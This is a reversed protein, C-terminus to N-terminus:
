RPRKRGKGSAQNAKAKESPAFKAKEEDTMKRVSLSGDDIQQKILEKKENRKAEDREKASSM